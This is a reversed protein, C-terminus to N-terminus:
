PESRVSPREDKLDKWQILPRDPKSYNTFLGDYGVEYLVLRLMIGDLRQLQEETVRESEEHSARGHALSNRVTKWLAVEDQTLVGESVLVRLIQAVSPATLNEIIAIARSRVDENGPWQSIYERLDRITGPDIRLQASRDQIRKAMRTIAEIEVGVALGHGEPTGASAEMARYLSWSIPHYVAYIEVHRLIYLLYCKVCDWFYSAHKYEPIVPLPFEARNQYLPTGEIYWIKLDSYEEVSLTPLISRGIGFRLSELVPVTPQRIFRAEKKEPEITGKLFGSDGKAELLIRWKVEPLRLEQTDLSWDWSIEEEQRSRVNRTKITYPFRPPKIVYFESRWHKGGEKRICM